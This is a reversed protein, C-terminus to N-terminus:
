VAVMADLPVDWSQRTIKQVQQCRHGVGLLFPSRNNKCYRQDRAFTRDYYGGGMGIRNGQRDFAVLPTIVLDLHWASLLRGNIPEPIGFRNFHMVSTPQYRIFQLKEGDIMPLYCKKGEAWARKLIVSVDIEGSVAWYFAIHQSKQYISTQSVLRALCHAARRQAGYGMARRRLRISKRITHVSSIPNERSLVQALYHCDSIYLAGFTGGDIPGQVTFNLTPTM